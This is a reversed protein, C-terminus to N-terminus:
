LAVDRLHQFSCCTPVSRMLSSGSNTRLSKSIRSHGRGGTGEAPERELAQRGDPLTLIRAKGPPAHVPLRARLMWVVMLSYSAAVLPANEVKVVGEGM